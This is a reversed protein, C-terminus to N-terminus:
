VGTRSHCERAVLAGGKRGGAPAGVLCGVECHYHDDDISTVALRLPIEGDAFRPSLAKEIQEIPGRGGPALRVSVRKEHLQM